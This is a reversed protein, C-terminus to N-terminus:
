SEAAPIDGADSDESPPPQDSLADMLQENFRQEDKSPEDEIADDANAKGDRDSPPTSDPTKM